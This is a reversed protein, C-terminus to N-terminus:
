RAAIATSRQPQVPAEAKMAEPKHRDSRAWPMVVQTELSTAIVSTMWRRETKM